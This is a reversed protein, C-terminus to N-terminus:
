KDNFSLDWYTKWKPPDCYISAQKSQWPYRTEKLRVKSVYIVALNEGPLHIVPTKSLQSWLSFNVELGAVTDANISIDKGHDDLIKVDSFTRFGRIVFTEKKEQVWRILEESKRVNGFWKSFDISNYTTSAEAMFRTRGGPSLRLVDSANSLEANIPKLIKISSQLERSDLVGDFYDVPPRHFAAIFRGIRVCNIPLFASQTKIWALGPLERPVRPSGTLTGSLEQPDLPSGALTVPLEQPDMPSTRPGQTGDEYASELQPTSETQFMMSTITSDEEDDSYTPLAIRSITRPDENVDDLRELARFPWSKWGIPDDVM